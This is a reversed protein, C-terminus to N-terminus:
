VKQHELNLTARCTPGEVDNLYEEELSLNKMERLARTVHKRIKQVMEM